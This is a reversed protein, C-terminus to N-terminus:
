KAAIRNFGIKQTDEAKPQFESSIELTDFVEHFNEPGYGAEVLMALDLRITEGATESPFVILGGQLQYIGDAKYSVIHRIVPFGNVYYKQFDHLSVDEYAQAYSALIDADNSAGFSVDIVEIQKNVAFLCTEDPTTLWDREGEGGPLLTYGPLYLRTMGYSLYGDEYLAGNICADTLSTDSAVTGASGSDSPINIEIESSGPNTSPASTNSQSLLMNEAIYRAAFYVIVGVVISLIRKGAKGKKPEPAPKAEPAPKPQPQSQPQPQGQADAVKTGCYNCFKAQDSIEKGCKNCFM